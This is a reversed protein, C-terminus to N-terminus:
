QIAHYAYLYDIWDVMRGIAARRKRFREYTPFLTRGHMVDNRITTFCYKEEYQKQSLKKQLLFNRWPQHKMLADNVHHFELEDVFRNGGGKEKAAKFRQLPTKVEDPPLNIGTEDSVGCGDKALIDRSLGEILSLVTYLQVRFEHRNFEWYTILGSVQNGRLTLYWERSEFLVFAAALPTSDPIHDSVSIEREIMITREGNTPRETCFVREFNAGDDSTPVVSYTEKEVIARAANIDGLPVYILDAVKIMVDRVVFTEGLRQMRIAFSRFEPTAPTQNNQLQFM